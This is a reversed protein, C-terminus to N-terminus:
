PSPMKKICMVTFKGDIWELENISKIKTEFLLREFLRSRKLNNSGYDLNKPETRNTYIKGDNTLGDKLLNLIPLHKEKKSRIQTIFMDKM